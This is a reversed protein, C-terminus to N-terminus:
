RSAVYARPDFTYRRKASAGADEFEVRVERPLEGSGLPVAFDYHRTAAGRDRQRTGEGFAIKESRAGPLEYSYSDMRGPGGELQLVLSGRLESGADTGVTQLSEPDVWFYYLENGRSVQDGLVRVEEAFSRSLSAVIERELTARVGDTERALLGAPCVLSLAYRGLHGDARDWFDLDSHQLDKNVGLVKADRRSASFSAESLRLPRVDFLQTSLRVNTVYDRDDVFYCFPGGLLFLPLNLWFSSNIDSWITPCYELYALLVLDAGAREAAEVWHDEQEGVSLALFEERAAGDPYALATARTFLGGDLARVLEATTADPDFSLRVSELADSEVDPPVLREEAVPQLPIVAVHFPLPAEKEVAQSRCGAALAMLVLTLSRAQQM